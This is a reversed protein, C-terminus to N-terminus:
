EMVGQIDSFIKTQARLRIVQGLPTRGSGSLSEKLATEKGSGSALVWVVRAVAIANFTLSIRRPPPKPSDDVFVFSDTCKAGKEDEGIANQFLSAVHGDEGMGLFILDLVPWGDNISAFQRLEAEAFKVARDPLDEGRLRHVHTEPIGLPMFLLENAMKFNNEPDGPPLCREDAWFFHVRAFSTKRLRAQEVTSSFFQHTIRGGSLAVCYNGRTGRAAEIEDLWRGAVAQALADNNAFRILEFNEM